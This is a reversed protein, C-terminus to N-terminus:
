TTFTIDHSTADPELFRPLGEGEEELALRVKRPLPAFPTIQLTAAKRKTEVRWTGCVVGDVLITALLRLNGKQYVVQRHEDAIVRTRDAHSLLLNDFEPLFRVPAPCEPDPRPADPLDFLERGREDTFTVLEPRMAEFVSQLRPLGSWTQADAASAPGFAALYRRLLAPTADDPDLPAELWTEALTFAANAPFAWPHETPVMVLPLMMRVVFGLARENIEPFREQLLARMEGFTRPAELLLERAAPIVREPELGAAREGLVKLGQDLVPQLTLRFAAYDAASFAHLTGRMLTGRVVTRDRLAQHLDDRQFGNLRSWLGVFPPKPEQAQMGILREIAVVPNADSRELLMQRALTARNLHRATLVEPPVFKREM